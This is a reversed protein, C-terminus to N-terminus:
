AGVLEPYDIVTLNWTARFVNLNAWAIRSSVSFQQRVSALGDFSGPTGPISAEKVDAETLADSFIELVTAAFYFYTTIQLLAEAAGIQMDTNTKLAPHNAITRLLSAATVAGRTNENVYGILEAKQQSEVKSGAVASRWSGLKGHLDNIVVENCVKSLTSGSAEAVERATRVLERPLGGALCHCLCIFPLSMGVLRRNLLQISDAMSLYGVDVITDFASDLADRAPLGREEFSTLADESVSILCLVGPDQTRLFGKAENIFERVNDISSIKDLEDLIIVLPVKALNPMSKIIMITTTLFYQFEGVIEPYTRSKSAFELDHSKSFEAVYPAPMGLKGGWGFTHSQQFKIDM